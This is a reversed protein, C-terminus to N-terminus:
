KWLNLMYVNKYGNAKLVPFAQLSLSIMRTPFFSNDCVLVIRADRDPLLEPLTKETMETLPLNLADKIHERAFSEKGRVDLFTVPGESILASLGKRDVEGEEAGAFARTFAG